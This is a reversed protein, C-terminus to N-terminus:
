SVSFDNSIALYDALDKNNVRAKLGPFRTLFQKKRENYPMRVLEIRDPLFQLWECWLQEYCAAWLPGGSRLQLIARRDLGLLECDELAYYCRGLIASPTFFISSEPLLRLITFDGAGPWCVCEKILGQAVFYIGGPKLELRNGKSAVASHLNSCLANWADGHFPGYPSLRRKLLETSVEM